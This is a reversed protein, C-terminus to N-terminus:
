PSAAKQPNPAFASVMCNCSKGSYVVPPVMCTMTFLWIPNVVTLAKGM